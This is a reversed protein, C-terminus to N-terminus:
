TESVSKNKYHWYLITLMAGFIPMLPLKYRVLTGFNWTSIGVAFGFGLTFVLAFILFPDNIFYRILKIRIKLILYIVVILFIVSEIGLMLMLPNSVEWLYPRFLSVNVAAPLLMVMEQWTEPISGLEYGSGAGKGTWYRIDHATVYVTNTLNDVSYRPDDRGVTVVANYTSLVVLALMVPSSLRRILRNKIRLVNLRYYWVILAPLFVLLIYKKIVFITLIGFAIVIVSFIRKSRTISLNIFAWIMWCLASFTLTDKLIGSGWFVVSPIFLIAIALWQHADPYLKKLSSYLAWSGSFSTVAFFLAIGSYNGFSFLGLFGAYRDVIFTAPNLYHPIRSVLQYIGGGFEGNWFIIRFADNPNEIFFQWIRKAGYYYGFTDGGEGAYYFQYLLGVCIAAIMKLGLAPIFYKKTVEDTFLPRLFRSILLITIFYVPGIILDLHTM